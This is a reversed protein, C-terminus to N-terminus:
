DLAQRNHLFGVPAVPLQLAPGIVSEDLDIRLNPIWIFLLKSYRTLRDDNGACGKRTFHADGPHFDTRIVTLGPLFGSQSPSRFGERGVDPRLPAVIPSRWGFAIIRQGNPRRIM